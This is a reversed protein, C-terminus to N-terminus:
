FLNTRGLLTNDIEFDFKKYIDLFDLSGEFLAKSLALERYINLIGGELFITISTKNGEIIHRVDKVWFSYTDLKAKVFFFEFTEYIRPLVPVSTRFSCYNDYYRLYLEVEIWNPTYFLSPNTENLELIDEYIERLWKSIKASAYGNLESIKKISIREDNKLYEKELMWKLFDNYSKGNNQDFLVQSWKPMNGLCFLYELTTAKHIFKPREKTRSM